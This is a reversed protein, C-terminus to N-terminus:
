HRTPCLSRFFASTMSASTVAHLVGGVQCCEDPEPERPRAALKNVQTLEDAYQQSEEYGSHASSTVQPAAGQMDGAQANNCEAAVPSDRSPSVDSSAYRLSALLSFHGSNTSHYASQVRTGHWPAAPRHLRLRQPPGSCAASATSCRLKKDLEYAKVDGFRAWGQVLHQLCASGERWASHLAAAARSRGPHLVHYFSSHLSKTQHLPHFKGICSAAVFQWLATLPRARPCDRGCPM